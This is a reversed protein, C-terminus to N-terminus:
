KKLKLHDIFDIIVLIDNNLKQENSYLESFYVQDPNFTKYEVDLKRILFQRIIENKGPRTLHIQFKNDRITDNSIYDFGIMQFRLKEDDLLLGIKAIIFREKQEDQKFKIYNELLEIMNRKIGYPDDNVDPPLSFNNSRNSRFRHQIIERIIPPDFYDYESKVRPIFRVINEERNKENEKGLVKRLIVIVSEIYINQDEYLNLPALLIEEIICNNLIFKRLDEHIGMNLIIDSTIIAIKGGNKLRWLSNVIFMSYTNYSNIQDYLSIFKSKNKQFYESNESLLPPNLLIFDFEDHDNPGFVFLTDQVKFSVGMGEITSKFKPDIDYSYIQSKKIGLKLLTIIFAGNGVCPDLIKDNPKIKGLKSVMYEATKSPTEFFNTGIGKNLPFKERWEPELMNLLVEASYRTDEYGSYFNDLLVDIAKSGFKKLRQIINSALDSNHEKDQFEYILDEISYNVYKSKDFLVLDRVDEKKIDIEHQFYKSVPHIIWTKFNEVLNDIIEKIYLDNTIYHHLSNQFQYTCNKLVM